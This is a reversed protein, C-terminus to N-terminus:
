RGQVTANCRKSIFIDPIYQLQMSAERQYYHFIALGMKHM